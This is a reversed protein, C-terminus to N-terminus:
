ALELFLEKQSNDKSTETLYKNIANKVVLGVIEALQCPVANGIQTFVKSQTGYFQYNEPFTQIIKAEDITLRRLSQPVVIKSVDQGTILLHHFKEIWSEKQHYLHEEDIIPTRNGGMSAPLTTSWSDPNLPRGQGNFLMGAYASRRLVPNKAITIKARTIHPNNKSGAHGLHSISDRITPAEKKYLNFDNLDINKNNKLGIFFIRERSQPVGFDKANLHILSVKYGLRNARLIIENKIQSFRDLSGLSKVNEMIFANPNIRKVVELFSFVLKSRPDNIDMKGAVSFGQCPPGGFVLDINHCDNFKDLNEDLDGEILLSDKHNLRYTKCATHDIENAMAISFGAKTMGVDMGGAGSFLSIAKVLEYEFYEFKSYKVNEMFYTM